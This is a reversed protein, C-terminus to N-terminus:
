DRTPRKKAQDEELMDLGPRVELPTEAATRPCRYPTEMMDGPSLRRAADSEDPGWYRLQGVQLGAVAVRTLVPEVLVLQRRTPASATSLAPPSCASAAADDGARGDRGVVMVELDNTSPDGRSLSEEDDSAM